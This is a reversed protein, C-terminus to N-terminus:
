TSSTFTKAAVRNSILDLSWRLSKNKLLFDLNKKGLTVQFWIDTSDYVYSHATRPQFCPQLHHSCRRDRHSGSRKRAALFGLCLYFNQFSVLPRTHTAEPQRRADVFGFSHRLLFANGTGFVPRLVLAIWDDIVAVSWDPSQRLEPILLLCSLVRLWASSVGSYGLASLLQNFLHFWALRRSSLTSRGGEAPEGPLSIRGPTGLDRLRLM